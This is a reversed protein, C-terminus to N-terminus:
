EAHPLAFLADPTAVGPVIQSLSVQTQRGQADVVIWSRLALPKEDFFMILTGEGPTATRVVSLRLLGNEHSFGTVTVDGSLVIHAGLLLGLPTRDIPIETTQDLQEDRFVVKGDNAVLLLPSPKDYAFRMRGPRSLWVVGTTRQGDPAIQEFRARLTTIQNLTEQIRGIWGRDAPTLTAEARAPALAASSMALGALLLLSRRTFIRRRM